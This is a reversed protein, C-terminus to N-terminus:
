PEFDSVTIIVQAVQQSTQSSPRALLNPKKIAAWIQLDIGNPYPDLILNSQGDEDFGALDGELLCDFDSTTAVTPEYPEITAVVSVPFNNKVNMTTSGQWLGDAKAELEIHTPAGPAFGIEAFKYIKMQVPVTISAREIPQAMAVVAVVCVAAISMLACRKLM